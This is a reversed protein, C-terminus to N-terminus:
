LVRFFAHMDFVLSYIRSELGVILTCKPNFSELVHQSKLKRNQDLDHSNLTWANFIVCERIWFVMLFCAFVHSDAFFLVLINWSLCKFSNPRTFCTCYSSKHKFNWSYHVVERQSNDKWMVNFYFNSKWYSFDM